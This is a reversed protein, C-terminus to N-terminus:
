PVGVEGIAILGATRAAAEQEVRLQMEDSYRSWSSTVEQDHVAGTWDAVARISAKTDTGLQRAREIPLHLAVAEDETPRAPAEDLLEDFRMAGPGTPYAAFPQWPEEPPLPPEVVVSTEARPGAWALCLGSALAVVTVLGRSRSFMSPM